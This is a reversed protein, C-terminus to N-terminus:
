ITQQQCDMAEPRLITQSPTVLVVRFNFNISNNGESVDFIPFM